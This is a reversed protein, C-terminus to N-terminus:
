KSFSFEGNWQGGVKQYTLLPEGEDTLITFSDGLAYARSNVKLNKAKPFYLWSNGKETKFAVANTQVKSVERIGMDKGLGHHYTHWKTGVQLMRKFEAMSSAEMRRSLTEIEKFISV